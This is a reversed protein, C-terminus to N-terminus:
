AAELTREIAKELTKVVFLQEAETLYPHMPLSIVRQSARESHPFDGNKYNLYNLAEQCHMSGPYHVATPVGQEQMFAQVAERQEVEITYQAYVSSCGEKVLPTRCISALLHNYRDAVLARQKVEGAFLKLKQLLIAAQISDMRGNIGIRAHTYRGSQGHVRIQRLKQALNDDDTFCAGSDGYGGLPKSPFFSTCGITTLACSYKGKYSAGFSQAADEVVPLGHKRAVANIADMDACQGFLNVPMIAKTKATISEEIRTSDINYTVPDIDVFVPIAQCLAIVEATAFFSFPSTIVEDGPKIDLAMLAMLLSDTGSSNVIVHKVGVFAALKEELEDIEPGMIYQGHDLVKKISQFVDTEILQYQKKLDIFQM